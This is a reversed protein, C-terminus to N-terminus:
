ARASKEPEPCPGAKSTKEMESCLGALHPLLDLKPISTKEKVCACLFGMLGVCVNKGNAQFSLIYGKKRDEAIYLSKAKKAFPDRAEKLIEDLDAQRSIIIYDHTDITGVFSDKARDATTKLIAAAWEILDAHHEYGYKILFPYVNSVRVYAVAYQGLRSYVRDLERLIAAKGPLGTLYDPWNGPDSQKRHLQAIYKRAESAGM